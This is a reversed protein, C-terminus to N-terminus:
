GRALDAVSRVQQGPSTDFKVGDNCIFKIRPLILRYYWRSLLSVHTGHLNIEELRNLHKLVSLGRSTVHSRRLDIRILGPLDLLCDLHRDKVPIDALDLLRLYGLHFNHESLAEFIADPDSRPQFRLGIIRECLQSFDGFSDDRWDQKATEITGGLSELQERVSERKLHQEVQKGIWDRRDTHYSLYDLAQDKARRIADLSLGDGGHDPHNEMAKIRYAQRVDEETIPPLLGLTVM